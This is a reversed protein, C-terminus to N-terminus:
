TQIYNNPFSTWQQSKAICSRQSCRLGTWFDLDLYEQTFIAYLNIGQLKANVSQQWCANQQWPQWPSSGTRNNNALLPRTTVDTSTDCLVTVECPGILVWCRLLDPERQNKKKKEERKESWRLPVSHIDTRLGSWPDPRSRTDSTNRIQRLVKQGVRGVVYEFKFDANREGTTDIRKKIM